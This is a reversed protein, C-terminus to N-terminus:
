STGLAPVTVVVGVGLGRRVRLTHGVSHSAAERFRSTAAFAHRMRRRRATRTDRLRKKPEVRNVLKAEASEVFLQYREIANALKAWSHALDLLLARHVPEVITHQAFLLCELTRWRITDPCM